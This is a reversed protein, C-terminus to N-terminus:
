MSDHQSSTVRIKACSQRLPSLNPVFSHLTSSNWVAAFHKLRLPLTNDVDKERIGSGNECGKKGNRGPMRAM